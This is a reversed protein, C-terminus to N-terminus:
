MSKAPQAVSGVWNLKESTLETEGDFTYAALYGGKAVSYDLCAANSATLRPIGELWYHGFFVPKSDDYVLRDADPIPVDPMGTADDGALLADRYTSATADWWKLRGAHREHGDKDRFAMGSPLSVELGKLLVDVARHEPTGKVHARHLLDETLHGGPLQQALQSRLGEHWCAHVVRLAPLDLWLPLTRFWDILERHRSSGEGVADLFAAHQHWNKESHPRLFEGNDGRTAFAIANLEHNGMVAMASGADIMRRVLDGVELQKPGRDIFDGVFVMQRTVHRWAGGSQRYGLKLLLAELADAHGHIDGVLDIQGM